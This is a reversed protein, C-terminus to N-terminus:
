WEPNRPTGKSFVHAVNGGFALEGDWHHDRALEERTFVQIFDYIGEDVLHRRYALVEKLSLM